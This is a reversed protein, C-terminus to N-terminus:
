AVVKGIYEKILQEQDQDNINQKILKEAEIVAKDIVEKSLTERAQLFEQEIKKEAQARMKEASKKAEAIIQERANEGQEVYTDVITKVEKDLSEMKSQYEKLEKEAEAKKEELESIETKLNEVRGSFFNGAPKRLLVFLVAVLVVFNLLKYNDITGWGGGHSGGESGAAFVAASVMLLPLLYFIVKKFKM